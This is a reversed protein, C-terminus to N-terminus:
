RLWLQIARWWSLLLMRWWWWWRACSVEIRCLWQVMGLEYGGAVQGGVETLANVAKESLKVFALNLSTLAKSHAVADALAVAGAEDLGRIGALNLQRLTRNTRLGQALAAAARRRLKCRFLFSLRCLTSLRASPPSCSRPTILARTKGIKNWSSGPGLAQAPAQLM